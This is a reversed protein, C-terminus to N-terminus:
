ISVVYGFQCCLYLYQLMLRQYPLGLPSEIKQAIVEARFSKVDGLLGQIIENFTCDPKILLPRPFRTAGGPEPLVCFPPYSPCPRTEHINITLDIAKLNISLYEFEPAFNGM